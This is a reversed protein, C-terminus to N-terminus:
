LRLQRLHQWFDSSDALPRKMPGWREVKSMIFFRDLTVKFLAVFGILMVSFLPSSISDAGTHSLESILIILIM